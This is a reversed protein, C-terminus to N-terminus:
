RKRALAEGAPTRKIQSMVCDVGEWLFPAPVHLSYWLFDAHSALKERNILKGCM